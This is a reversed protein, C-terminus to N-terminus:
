GRKNNDYYGTMDLGKYNPDNFKHTTFLVGANKGAAEACKYEGKANDVGVILIVHSSSYLLHLFLLQYGILGM